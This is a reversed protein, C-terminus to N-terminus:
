FPNDTGGLLDDDGGAPSQTLCDLNAVYPGANQDYGDVILYYVKGAEAEFEISNSGWTFCDGVVLNWAGDVVMVDHNVTTPEPDILQWTVTESAAARWTWVKEPAEYIGVNCSYGDIQGVTIGVGDMECVECVALGLPAPPEGLPEGLPDGLADGDVEGLALGEPDGLPLGLPDGLTDGMQAAHSVPAMKQAVPSVPAIVAQVSCFPQTVHSAVSATAPM